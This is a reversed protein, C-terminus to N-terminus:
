IELLAALRSQERENAKRMSFVHRGAGRPTYGVVVMRGELHGICIIRMEGYDKRTDEVELTIGAFVKAADAFDLGRDALTKARKAPDFTIRV